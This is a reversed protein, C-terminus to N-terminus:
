NDAYQLWMNNDTSSRFVCFLRGQFLALAPFDNLSSGNEAWASWSIGDTSGIQWLKDDSSTSRGVAYVNNNSLLGLAPKTSLQGAPVGAYNTCSAAGGNAVIGTCVMVTNSSGYTWAVLLQTNGGTDLRTTMSPASTVGQSTNKLYVSNSFTTGNGTAVLTVNEYGAGTPNAFGVYALYATTGVGIISPTYNDVTGPSDAITITAPQTFNTGDSSNIQSLTNSSSWYVLYLKGNYVGLTPSGAVGTPLSVALQTFAATTSTSYWLVINQPSNNDKYALYLRSDFVALSPGTEANIQQSPYKTAISWNPMSQSQAAGTIFLFAAVFISLRLIAKSSLAIPARLVPNATFKNLM